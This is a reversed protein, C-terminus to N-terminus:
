LLLLEARQYDKHGERPKSSYTWSRRTSPVGSWSTTSWTPRVPTSYLPSIVERSRSTVIRKICGLICNTKLSAPTCHWGMNLKMDLILGLDKEEPSNEIREKGLRDKAQSQGSGPTPGQVQGQQIECPKHLSM